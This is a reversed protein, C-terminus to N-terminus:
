PTVMILDATIRATRVGCEGDHVRVGGREWPQYGPRRVRVTYTGAREDAGGLTTATDNPPVGRWGVLQLAEIYAGDQVEASAGAALWAGSRADRIQVAIGRDLMADCGRGLFDVCGASFLAMLAATLRLPRTRDLGHM